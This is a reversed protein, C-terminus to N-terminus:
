TEENRRFRHRGVVPLSLQLDASMEANTHGDAVRKVVAVEAETLEDIALQTHTANANSRQKKM